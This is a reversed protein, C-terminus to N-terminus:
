TAAENALNFVPLQKSSGPASSLRCCQSAGGVVSIANSAEVGRQKGATLLAFGARKDEGAAVRARPPPGHRNVFAESTVSLLRLCVSLRGHAMLRVFM